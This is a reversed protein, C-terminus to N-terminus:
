DDELACEAALRGPWGSVGGGPHSGAGALYLGAVPTRYRGLGPAPRNGGLRTPIMDLHFYCGRPTSFREEFDIPASEVAGIEAELGSLFRRASNRITQSYGSKAAAWGGTPLYPTNSHLYLVDQGPPAISPDAASLISMYVPPNDVNQGVKIAQLQTMHDELSGTMFTTKRIDAREARTARKLEAKPYGLRGRVAVDIKFPAVNVYNAPMYRVADRTTRDLVDEALLRGLTIQPACSALVGRRARLLSGDDLSVGIVRGNEVEIRQVARGLRVEGGRSELLRRFANILGSMGGKPRRVGGRHVGGFASLYLGTGDMDGPVIMGTWFAWLGRMADSEFTESILEFISASLMRGLM